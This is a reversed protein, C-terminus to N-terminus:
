NTIVIKYKDKEGLRNLLANIESKLEIMKLERGVTLDNFRELEDMKQILDLEALKRKTIDSITGILRVPLNNVDFELEALGHVWRIKGNNQRVIQYEKDFKKRKGIIENIVYDNMIERWDPHVISTWGDLTRVFKEDIGFIKDLIESSRWLGDPLNWVFSGLNAIAQSEKLLRESEKLADETIRNETIDRAVSLLKVQNAKDKMPILHQDYVKKSKNDGFAVLDFRQVSMSEICQKMKTKFVNRSEPLIFDFVSRGVVKEESFGEAYHNMFLYRGENDLLAIYDPSANVLSRWKEESIRLEQQAILRETIERLSILKMPEGEWELESFFIEATRDAGSNFKVSIEMNSIASVPYSFVSNVLSKESQGFLEEAAPNAFRIRNLSDIILIGDKNNDALRKFKLESVRLKDMTRKHRVYSEIRALFERNQVPTVIYGDAGTELGESQNASSTALSSILVVFVSQHDPNSKIIKLVELGSIDPLMVDLLVISFSEKDILELAETGNEACTVKYGNQTLLISYALLLDANDDVILIQCNFNHEM